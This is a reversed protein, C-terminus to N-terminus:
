IDRTSVELARRSAMRALDVITSSIVRICLIVEAIAPRAKM